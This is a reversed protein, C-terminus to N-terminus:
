EHSTRLLGTVKARATEADEPKSYLRVIEIPHQNLNRVVSSHHSLPRVRRVDDETVVSIDSAELKYTSTKSSEVTVVLNGLSNRILDLATRDGDTPSEPTHYVERYHDRRRIRDAPHNIVDREWDNFPIFGHVPCRIGYARNPDPVAYWEQVLAGM